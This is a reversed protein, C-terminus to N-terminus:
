PVAYQMTDQVPGSVPVLDASSLVHGSFVSPYEVNTKAGAALLREVKTYIGTHETQGVASGACLSGTQCRLDLTTASGLRLRNAATQQNTAYDAM